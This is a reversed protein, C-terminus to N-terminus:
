PYAFGLMEGLSSSNWCRSHAEFACFLFPPVEGSAGGIKFLREQLREATGIRLQYATAPGAQLGAPHRVPPTALALAFDPLPGAQVFRSASRFTPLTGQSRGQARSPPVGRLWADFFIM